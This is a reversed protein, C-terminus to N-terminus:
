IILTLMGLDTQRKEAFINKKGVDTKGSRM